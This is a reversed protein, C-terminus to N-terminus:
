FLFSVQVETANSRLQERESTLDLVMAEKAEKYANFEEEKIKGSEIAQDLKSHLELSMKQSDELAAKLESESSKFKNKDDQLDSIEAAM